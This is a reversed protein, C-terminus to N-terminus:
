EDKSMIIAEQTYIVFFLRPIHIHGQLWPLIYKFDSKHSTDRAGRENKQHLTNM